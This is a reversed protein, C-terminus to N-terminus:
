VGIELKRILIGAETAQFHVTQPSGTWAGEDTYVNNM